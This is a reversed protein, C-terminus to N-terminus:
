PVQKWADKYAEYVRPHVLRSVAIDGPENPFIGKEFRVAAQMADRNLVALPVSEEFKELRARMQLPDMHDDRVAVHFGWDGFSPVNIRYPLASLGSAGITKWITTFALNAHIPSTSQIAAVLSLMTVASLKVIYRPDLKPKASCVRAM